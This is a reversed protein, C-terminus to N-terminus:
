AGLSVATLLWNVPTTLFDLGNFVADQLYNLPRNLVGTWLLALLAFFIINEYRMIRFYMDRPLFYTAVRSGDLPPVPLLNFVALGVNILIMYYLIMQLTDVVPVSDRYLTPLYLLKYLIMLLFAMAVNSLPGALASLMMGRKPNKFYFPNIPVPKAWGFGFLLLATTGVPDFHALPNLTLRGEREATHDGLLLAVYGHACEHVPLATFVVIARILLLWLAAHLGSSFLSM